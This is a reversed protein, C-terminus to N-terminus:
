LISCRAFVYLTVCILKECTLGSFIQVKCTQELCSLVRFILILKACPESQYLNPVLFHGTHSSLLRPLVAHKLLHVYFIGHM